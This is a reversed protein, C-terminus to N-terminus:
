ENVLSVITLWPRGIPLGTNDDVVIIDLMTHDVEVTSASLHEKKNPRLPQMEEARAQFHKQMKEGKISLLLPRIVELRWKAKQKYEDPLSAFDVAKQEKIWEESPSESLSQNPAFVLRGTEHREIIEKRTFRTVQDKSINTVWYQDPGTVRTIEWYDGEFIFRVGVGLDIEM